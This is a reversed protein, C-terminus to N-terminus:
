QEPFLLPELVFKSFEQASMVSDTPAPQGVFDGVLCIGEFGLRFKGRRPFGPHTIPCMLDVVGERDMQVLVTDISPQKPIVQLLAGERRVM